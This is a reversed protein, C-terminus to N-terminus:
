EYGLEKLKLKIDNSNSLLCEKHESKTNEGPYVYDNDGESNFNYGCHESLFNVLELKNNTVNNKYIYVENFQGQMDTVLRYLIVLEQDSKITDGNAFFVSQIGFFRGEGEIQLIRIPHFERKENIPKFLIGLIMTSNIQAGDSPHKHEFTYEGFSVIYNGFENQWNKVEFAGHHIQLKDKFIRLVFDAATENEEMQYNLDFNFRSKLDKYFQEKNFYTEQIDRKSNEQANLNIALLSVVLSILIKKM